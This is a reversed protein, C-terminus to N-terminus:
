SACPQGVAPPWFGSLYDMFVNAVAAAATVRTLCLLWGTLLGPFPRFATKAYLYSGGAHQFYSAVEAFCAAIVGIGAAAILYAIPSQGGLIGELTSPLAFISGGIVINVMLAALSWRGIAPVLDPTHTGVLPNYWL